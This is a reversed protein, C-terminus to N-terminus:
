ELRELTYYLSYASSDAAGVQDVSYTIATGAKAELTITAGTSFGSNFLLFSGLCNGNSQLIGNASAQLAGSDDTWEPNLSWYSGSCTSTTVTGYVSLRYLGTQTPTFITTTPIPATQNLLKGRAVIPPSVPGVTSNRAQTLAFTSLLLVAVCLTKFM